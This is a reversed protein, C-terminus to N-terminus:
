SNNITKELLKLKTRGAKRWRFKGILYMVTAFLAPVLALLFLYDRYDCSNSSFHVSDGINGIVKYM